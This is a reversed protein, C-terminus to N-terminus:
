EELPDDTQRATLDAVTGFVLGLVIGFVAHGALTEVAAGPFEAAEGGVAGAWAPLLLLPLIAWVALGYAFGAGALRLTLSAGAIPDTEVPSRLAGLVVSRTVIFGFIVGLVAGHATHIAWGISGGEDFGYISPIVVEVVEPDVFWVLLGFALAGLAGGIAGGLVWGAVGGVGFETSVESEGSM